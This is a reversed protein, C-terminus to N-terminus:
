KEYSQKLSISLFFKKWYKKFYKKFFIKQFFINKGFINKELFIKKWFINKEFFVKKRIKSYFWPLFWNEFHLILNELESLATGRKLIALIATKSVSIAFKRKFFSAFLQCWQKKYSFHTSAFKSFAPLFSADSSKIVSIPAPLIEQKFSNFSRYEKLCSIKGAGM